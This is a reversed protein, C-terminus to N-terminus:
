NLMSRENIPAPINKAFVLTVIQLQITSIIVHMMHINMHTYKSYKAEVAQHISVLYSIINNINCSLLVNLIQLM